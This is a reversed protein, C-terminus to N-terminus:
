WSKMASRQSRSSSGLGSGSGACSIGAIVGVDELAADNEFVAVTAAAVAEDVAVPAAAGDDFGLFELKARL